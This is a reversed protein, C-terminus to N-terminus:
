YRHKQVHRVFPNIETALTESVLFLKLFFQTRFLTIVTLTILTELLLCITYTKSSQHQVVSRINCAQSVCKYDTKLYMCYKYIVVNPLTRNTKYYKPPRSLSIGTISCCFQTKTVMLYRCIIISHMVYLKQLFCVQNNTILRSNMIAIEVTKELWLYRDKFISPWHGECSHRPLWNRAQVVLSTSKGGHHSWILTLVVYFRLILKDGSWM